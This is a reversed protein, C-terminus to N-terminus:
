EELDGIMRVAKASRPTITCDFDKPHSITGRTYEPESLHKNPQVDFVALFSAISIFLIGDALEKGPCIRRGFGFVLARPDPEPKRGDVGLYREPKFISPEFYTEPDHTFQWINPVIQAGKPILYGDYTDDEMAVHPAALPAAVNWRLVEKVLADIYPLSARDALKPLRDSGVIADVEAQARNLVSPYFFMALIFSTFASVTTDSGAGFMGVAAWKLLDEKGESSIDEINTSVFSYIATGQLTQSKAWMFFNDTFANLGTKWEKAKEMIKIGPLFELLYGLFPFADLFGIHPQSSSSFQSLITKFTEIQPDVEGEKTSYGYTLKLILDFSWKHIHARVQKPDRLTRLMLKKIESEYLPEFRLVSARTGMFQHMLKRTARFRECYRLLLLIYKAGCLEGGFAFGPRDSYQASKKNLLESAIKADNLFIIPRGLVVISSIPGYIKNHKAWHPGETDTPLDLINGLLPLGTPGPPLCGAQCRSRGIKRLTFRILVLLLVCSALIDYCSVRDM